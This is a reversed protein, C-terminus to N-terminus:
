RHQPQPSAPPSIARELADQARERTLEHGIAIRAFEAAQERDRLQLSLLSTNLASRAEQRQHDAIRLAYEQEQQLRAEPSLDEPIRAAEERARTAANRYCRSAGAFGDRAPMWQQEDVSILALYWQAPCNAANMRRAVEFDQRADARRQQDYAIMGSLTLLEGSAQFKKASAVDDAAAELRGTNYLNWARWYYADGLYWTGLDIMRTSAAIADEHRGLYSLVSARGLLADRQEPRLALAEDYLSAARALESRARWVGALTVTIVPANPFAEQAAILLPLARTIQQRASVDNSLEYRAIFFGAEAFRPSAALVSDLQGRRNPDCLGARYQLLPRDTDGEADPLTAGPRSCILALRTYRDLLSNSGPRQLFALWEQLTAAPPRSPPEFDAAAAVTTWPIASVIEVYRAGDPPALSRAKEMWERAELGLEKERMALLLATSFTKDNHSAAEYIAFAELLCRYCGEDVLRDAADVTAVPVAGAPAVPRRAAGCGLMPICAALCLASRLMVM